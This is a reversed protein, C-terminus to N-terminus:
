EEAAALAPRTRSDFATLVGQEPDIKRKAVRYEAYLADHFDVGSHKTLRALASAAL